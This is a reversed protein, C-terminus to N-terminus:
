VELEHLQICSDIPVRARIDLKYTFAHSNIDTRITCPVCALDSCLVFIPSIFSVLLFLLLLM